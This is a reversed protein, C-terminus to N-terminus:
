FVFPIVAKRNRPYEGKFKEMYWNHHQLLYSVLLACTHALLLLVTTGADTM